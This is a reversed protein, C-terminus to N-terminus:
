RAAPSLPLTFTFTSGMGLESTASVQGGHQEVISKVISLGLGTGEIKQHEPSTSRFFAEFLRPMEEEPIGLGTDSVEIM